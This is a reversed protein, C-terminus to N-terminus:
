KCPSFHAVLLTESYVHGVFMQVTVRIQEIEGDAEESPYVLGSVGRCVDEGDVECGCSTPFTIRSHRGNPLEVEVFSHQQVCRSSRRLTNQGLKTKATCQAGENVCKEIQELM